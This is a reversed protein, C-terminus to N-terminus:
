HLRAIIRDLEILDKFEISIIGGGDETDSIDVRVGLTAAVSQELKELDADKSIPTNKNKFPNPNGKPKQQRQENSNASDNSKTDRDIEPNNLKRVLSETDRVSLGKTIVTKAAEHLADKKAGLLARAHGMSLSGNQVYEQIDFPLELLRLINSVHSRSKGVKESLTEFSYGFRTKIELYARAEELVNLDERQINEILALELSHDDTIDDKIYVPVTSKELLRLARYRREGAIIEFQNSSNNSPRVVIPQILGNNKISEALERISEETFNKRPQNPCPIIKSIALETPKGHTLLETTSNTEKKTKHTYSAPENVNDTIQRIRNVTEEVSPTQEVTPSLLGSLGKGLAKKNSTM